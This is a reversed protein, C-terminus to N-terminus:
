KFFNKLRETQWTTWNGTLYANTLISNYHTQEQFYDAVKRASGSLRHNFHTIAELLHMAVTQDLYNLRKLAELAHIRTRFEYASSSRAILEQLHKKDLQTALELWTIRVASGVGVIPKTIQLYRPLEEPNQKGLLSLAKNVVYYSSDHLTLEYVPLLFPPIKEINEVASQRVRPHIDTIFLRVTKEDLSDPYELLQEVIEARCGHFSEKKFQAILFEKKQTYPESRLAVLADYRDIMYPAKAAQAMLEQLSKRFTVTKVVQSNPDFLVFDIEKNDGNPVSVRHSQKEIWEKKEEWTGDKYHVRFIIPMKFMGVCSTLEHIQEVYFETYRRGSKVVDAYKVKYHPEGGRYIWQNFFWDLNVGLSEHFAMKLDDTNVHGYAHKKLYHTIAKQFSKDGLVYRLMDLVLSGKSYVRATGAQTHRIPYSNDKAAALVMNLENRRNWQFHDEGFVSREFHKQYHTAFSEQLWIDEASWATVYNGFWQHALEHANTSVYNRDLYARQDVLYFDGFVTATTNEMAGYLFDQVPVQSYRDWPYAMGLEQEMWDIMQTTYRFTPEVTEPFEPYYWNNVEVGRRTKTTQIAYQGIALMILYPAHPHTMRYHWTRTGDQNSKAAILTGNSLVSYTKDFSVIIESTLKDNMEDYMPIWHRNDIGQGQTWIQKRVSQLTKGVSEENQNWGIFYIGKRPTAEYDILLQYSDTGKLAANFRVIVGQDNTEFIVPRGNCLVRHITISPAHLFLSDIEPQLPVFTHEVSGKILGKEPFLRISLKLHLFDANRPKVGAGSDPLPCSSQAEATFFFTILIALYALRRTM